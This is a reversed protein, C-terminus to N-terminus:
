DNNCLQISRVNAPIQERKKLPKSYLRHTAAAFLL